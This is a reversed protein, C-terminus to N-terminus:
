ANNMCIGTEIIEKSLFPCPQISAAGSRGNPSSDHGLAIDNELCAPTQAPGRRKGRDGSQESDDSGAGRSERRRRHLQGVVHGMRDEAIDSGVDVRDLRCIGPGGHQGARMEVDLHQPHLEVALVGLPGLM